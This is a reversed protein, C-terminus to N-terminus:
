LSAIVAHLLPVISSCTLMRAKQGLDAGKRQSQLLISHSYGLNAEPERMLNPYSSITSKRIGENDVPVEPPLDPYDSHVARPEPVSPPSTPEPAEGRLAKSGAKQKRFTTVKKTASEQKIAIKSNAMSPEYSPIKFDNIALALMDDNIFGSSTSGQAAKGKLARPKTTIATEALTINDEADSGPDPDYVSEKGTAHEYVPINEEADSNPDPNYVPKNGASRSIDATNTNNIFAKAKTSTTSRTTHKSSIADSTITTIPNDSANIGSRNKSRTTMIHENEAM